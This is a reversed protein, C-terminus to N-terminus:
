QILILLPGRHSIEFNGYDKRLLLVRQKQAAFLYAITDSQRIIEFTNKQEKKKGVFVLFHADFDTGYRLRWGENSLSFRIPLLLADSVRVVWATEGVILLTWMIMMKTMTMTLLFKVKECNKSLFEIHKSKRYYVNAHTCRHLQLHTANSFHACTM